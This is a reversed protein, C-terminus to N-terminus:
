KNCPVAYKVIDQCSGKWRQPVEGMGDDTFSNSEPWIGVRSGVFASLYLEFSRLDM